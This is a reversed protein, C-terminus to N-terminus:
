TRPSWSGASRRRALCRRPCDVTIKANGPGPYDPPRASTQRHLTTAKDWVFYGGFILVSAAVIVALCGKGKHVIEKAPSPKVEPDLM